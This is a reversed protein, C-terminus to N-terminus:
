FNPTAKGCAERCLPCKYSYEQLYTKLCTYHFLHNCPTIAYKRKRNKPNNKLEDDYFEELCIPCTDLETIDKIKKKVQNYTTRRVSKTMDEKTITVPIDQMTVIEEETDDDSDNNDNNDNNANPHLGPIPHNFMYTVTGVQIGVLNGNEFIQMATPTPYDIEEESEEDYNNDDYENRQLELAYLFDLNPESQEM